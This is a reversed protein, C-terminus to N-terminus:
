VSGYGWPERMERALMGNAEEDGEFREAAPDWMLKRGLRMSIGGLHCLSVSRHGIEADAIPAKRTRVCEFFNGMHSDSAYLREAGAPLPDNLIAPDSAELRGRSVFVWGDTGEFRVGNRMTGVRPRGRMRGDGEDAATSVCTLRVGNAYEYEVWYDAPATYGRPVPASLELGHVSTPGSRETGMGWQAIDLHHAGWDTITGGSYELWYRFKGHCRQPVYDTAPAQGQWMEWDLWEPVPAKEFPGGRPGSPLAVVVHWLKGIRGNRVAECAERFERDSRQQSGTQLVRGTEKVAAVLRKGEDITLTLPKESYVDKGQRMAHINILTHWHDPTGNIVVDVSQDAIAKRFDSYRTAKPFDSVADAVHKEDVDCVAVVDGFRSAWKADNRGQGGCGVLLIGPRDNPSSPGVPQAGARRAALLWAPVAAGVAASSRVFQRRTMEDPRPSM